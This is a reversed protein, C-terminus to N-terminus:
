RQFLVTGRSLMLMWQGERMAYTQQQITVSYPHEMPLPMPRVTQSDSRFTTAYCWVNAEEASPFDITLNSLVHAAVVGPARKLLAEKVMAPGRLALGQRHWIGDPAVMECLGDYNAEDICRYFRYVRRAVALEELTNEHIM